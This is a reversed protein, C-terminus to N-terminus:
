GGAPESTSAGGGEPGGIVVAGRYHEGLRGRPSAEARVAAFGGSGVGRLRGAAARGPGALPGACRRGADTGEDANGEYPSRRGARVIRVTRAAGPAARDTGTAAAPGLVAGVSRLPRPANCLSQRRDNGEREPRRDRYRPERVDRRRLLRALRATGYADPGVGGMGSLEHGTHLGVQIRRDLGDARGCLTGPNTARGRRRPTSRECTQTMRARRCARSQSRNTWCASDSMVQTAIVRIVLHIM